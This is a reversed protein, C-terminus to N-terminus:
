PAEPASPDHGPIERLAALTREAAAEDLTAIAIGAHVLVYDGPGAEPTCALSVTRTVGGFAVRAQRFLPDDAEEVHDIRGPIALCM